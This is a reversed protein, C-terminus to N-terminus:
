GEAGLDGITRNWVGQQFGMLEKIGKGPRPSVFLSDPVEPHISPTVVAGGGPRTGTGPQRGPLSGAVQGHM